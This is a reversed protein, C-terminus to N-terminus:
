HDPETTALAQIRTIGRRAEQASPTGPALISVRNYIALADQENGLAEHLRGKKFEADALEALRARFSEAAPSNPHSQVFRGAVELVKLSDAIVKLQAAAADRLFPDDVRRLIRQCVDPDGIM